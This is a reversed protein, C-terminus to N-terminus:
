FNKHEISKWGDLFENKKILNNMKKNVQNKKSLDM